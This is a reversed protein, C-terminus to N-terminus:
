TTQLLPHGAKIPEPREPLGGSCIFMNYQMNNIHKCTAFLRERERTQSVSHSISEYCKELKSNKEDLM